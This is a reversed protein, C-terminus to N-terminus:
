VNQAAYFSELAHDIQTDFTGLYSRPDLIAPDVAVNQAALADALPATPMNKIATAVLEHARQRGVEPALAMMAAEAMVHDASTLNTAMQTANVELSELLSRAKVASSWTLAVLQPVAFWEIPWVGMGRDHDAVMAELVLPVLQRTIRANQVLQQSLIPNRKQPMTSSTGAGGGAPGESLEGIEPQASLSVDLGVKGLSAAISATVVAMEAFGDRQTHWNVKAPALGLELAFAEHVETGGPGFSAGTGVAGSLQAVLVRPRSQRLREIHRTLASLWGAARLGFTTPLAPQGQSRALMLDGRHADALGALRRGAVLLESEITDLSSALQLVTATDLIDQTTAGWHAYQGSDRICM